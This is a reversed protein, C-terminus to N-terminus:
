RTLKTRRTGLAESSRSDHIFNHYSGTIDFYQAILSGCHTTHSASIKIRGNPAYLVGDYRAWSTSLEIDGLSYLAVLSDESQYQFGSGTIKIDGTAVIAGRGSVAHGSIQVDGDVFVIGDIDLTPGSFHQDGSYTVSARSQLDNIDYEPIPMVSTPSTLTVYSNSGAGGWDLLDEDQMIISQWHNNSGRVRMSGACEFDYNFYKDSGSVDANGNVHVAGDFTDHSGSLDLEQDPDASFIMYDFVPDSQTTVAATASGSIQWQNLGLISGFIPSVSITKSCSIETNDSSITIDATTLTVGNNGALTIADNTAQAPNGPLSQGGALVAADLANQLQSKQLYNYGVDITLGLFGIMVVMAFAFLVAVSGKENNILKRIRRIKEDFLRIIKM